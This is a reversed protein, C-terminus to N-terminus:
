AAPSELVDKISDLLGATDLPKTLARAFRLGSVGRIPDVASM